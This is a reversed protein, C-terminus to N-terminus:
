WQRLRYSAQAANTLTGTDVFTTQTTTPGRDLLASASWVRQMTWRTQLTEPIPLPFCGNM